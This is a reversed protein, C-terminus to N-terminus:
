FICPLTIFSPEVVNLAFFIDSITEFNDDLSTLKFVISSVSFILILLPLVSNSKIPKLAFSNGFTKSSTSIPSKLVM